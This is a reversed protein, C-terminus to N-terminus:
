ASSALSPSSKHAFKELFERLCPPTEAYQSLESICNEKSLGLKVNGRNSFFAPNESCRDAKLKTLYIRLFELQQKGRFQREWEQRPLTARAECLADPEIVLDKGDKFLLEPRSADYNISVQHLDICALDAIKVNNINLKKSKKDDREMIRHAKAYYNFYQACECFADLAKSYAKICKEYDAFCEGFESLGFEASIILRIAIISTYLNEISYTATVYLSGPDSITMWHEYDRDVFCAFRFKRYEPHSSLLQHLELTVKKGGSNIGAWSGDGIYMSLRPAYYKEDEGEFICAYIDQNKNYIRTVELFKVAYSKSADMMANVREM